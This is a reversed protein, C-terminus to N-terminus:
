DLSSSDENKTTVYGALHVVMDGIGAAMNFDQFHTEGSADAAYLVWRKNLNVAAVMHNFEPEIIGLLLFQLKYCRDYCDTICDPPCSELRGAVNILIFVPSAEPGMAIADGYDEFSKLTNYYIMGGLRPSTRDDDYHYRARVLDNFMPLHDSVNSTIDLSRRRFGAGILQLNILWLCRADEYLKAELLMIAAHLTRDRKFLSRIVSMKKYLIHLSVLISDLVCTNYFQGEALFYKVDEARQNPDEILGTLEDHVINKKDIEAARRDLLDYLSKKAVDDDAAMFLMVAAM